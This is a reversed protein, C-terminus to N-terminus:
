FISQTGNLFRGFFWFKSKEPMIQSDFFLKKRDISINKSDTSTSSKSDTFFVCIKLTQNKQFHGIKANKLGFSIPMPLGLSSFIESDVWRTGTLLIGFTSKQYKSFICTESRGVRCTQCQLDLAHWLIFFVKRIGSLLLM